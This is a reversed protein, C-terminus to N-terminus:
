RGFLAMGIDVAPVVVSGGQAPLMFPVYGHENWQMWLTDESQICGHFRVEIELPRGDDTRTEVRFSAVDLTVVEQERLARRPDRLMWQSSTSLFGDRARVRVTSADITRVTLETVGTAIWLLHKPRPRRAAERYLPLYAALPDIPPNLLVVTKRRVDDGGPIGQDARELIRTFEGVSAARLPLLVPAVVLHLGGLLCLALKDRRCTSGLARVIVEAVLAMAGVGAGLLVRDHPFTACLPVLSLVSGVTWFRIDAHAKWLPRVLAAFASLVVIALGFVAMRLVPLTLPYVEWFDAWPLALQALALVPLREAAARLFSLPSSLPDVYLGSGFAGYGLLTCAIRWGIVVAAYPLLSGHRVLFSGKDLFLAYAALYACAVLATEGACLGVALSLPGLWRGARSQTRRYRDHFLVAPMAFCLAVMANRNAIWGVVPAHADDLAFMAFALVAVERRACFRLYFAAAVGLLVGFWVLSHLHMLLASDAWLAYDLWHTFSSLPRFFALRVEPDAWWPFVGASVLQLSAATDGSAFRFLDLPYRALAPIGPDGRLMLQHLV